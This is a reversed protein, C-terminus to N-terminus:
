AAEAYQKKLYNRLTAVPEIASGEIDSVINVIRKWHEAWDQEWKRSKVECGFWDNAFEAIQVCGWPPREGSINLRAEYWATRILGDLQDRKKDSWARGDEFRPTALAFRFLTEDVVADINESCGHDEPHCLVHGAAALVPTEREMRKILSYFPVYDANVAAGAGGTRSRSEIASMQDRYYRKTKMRGDAQELEISFPVRNDTKILNREDAAAEASIVNQSRVGSDMAVMWCEKPSPLKM